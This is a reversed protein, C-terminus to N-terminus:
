AITTQNYSNERRAQQLCVKRSLAESFRPMGVFDCRLLVVTPRLAIAAREHPLRHEPTEWHMLDGRPCGPRTGAGGSTSCCAARQGSGQRLPRRRGCRSGGKCGKGEQQAARPATRPLVPLPEARRLRPGDDESSVALEPVHAHVMLWAEDHVCVASGCMCGGTVSLVKREKKQRPAKPAPKALPRAPQWSGRGQEDVM